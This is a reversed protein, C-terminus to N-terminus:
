PSPGFFLPLATPAAIAILTLLLAALYLSGVIVTRWLTGWITTEYVRRFAVFFYGVMYLEALIDAAPAAYPLRVLAAQLM